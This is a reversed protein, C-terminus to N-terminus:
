PVSGTQLLQRYLALFAMKDVEIVIEVNAARGSLGIYDIPTMGRTYEGHLEVTVFRLDTRGILDPYLTVAMALPDPMTFGRVLPHSRLARSAFATIGAFVQYASTRAHLAILDDYEEWTLQHDVSTEWSIMLSHPFANLVIHLAEPDIKVNFEATFINTNGKGHMTGGMWVLKAIKGPFTPDLRTALALNTMPGLAILTIDGPYQNAMRILALAAHESEAARSPSPRNQWEGLGDRGHIFETENQWPSILPHAAGRFVPIDDRNMAHLTTLVNHTVTDVDINGTVTTIALIQVSPHALALLLAVADDVGADTDIIYRV